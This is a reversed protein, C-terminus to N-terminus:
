ARHLNEGPRTIVINPLVAFRSLQTVSHAVVAVDDATIMEEAPLTDKLWDTMDTNVYGPAITTASVGNVSEELNFTECLSILAAKTAGYASLEPEPYVGTISAVAIVKAAGYVDATARLTPLAAQLLVYPARVNVEYLRDFRKVPLDAVAGKSGMGANIILADCRGFVEAHAGALAIIAEADTMDAPVVEVRGAGRERLGAAKKELAERGRASITLDWGDAAFRDAIAAGIGRSAGTVLAARNNTSKSM